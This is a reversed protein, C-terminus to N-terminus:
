KKFFLYLFTEVLYKKKILYLIEELKRMQIKTKTISYDQDSLNKQIQISQSNYNFLLSESDFYRENQNVELEYDNANTQNAPLFQSDVWMDKIRQRSNHYLYKKFDSITKMPKHRKNNHIRNNKTFNWKYIERQSIEGYKVKKSNINSLDFTYSKSRKESLLHLRQQNPYYKYKYEANSNVRFSFKQKFNLSQLLKNPTM